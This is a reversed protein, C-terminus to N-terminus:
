REEMEIDQETELSICLIDSDIREVNYIDDLADLYKEVVDLEEETADRSEGIGVCYTNSFVTIETDELDKIFEQYQRTAVIHEYDCNGPMNFCCRRDGTVLGISSFLFSHSELDLKDIIGCVKEDLMDAYYHELMSFQVDHEELQINETEQVMGNGLKGYDITDSNFDEQFAQSAKIGRYGGYGVEGRDIMTAIMAHLATEDTTACQIKMPQKKKHTDCSFLIYIKEAM